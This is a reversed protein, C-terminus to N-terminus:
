AIGLAKREREIRTIYRQIQGLRTGPLNIFECGVKLYTTGDPKRIERQDCVRLSVMMIGEGPVDLRCERFIRGTSFSAEQAMDTKLSIGGGSIDQLPLQLSEQTGDDRQGTLRCHVTPETPLELRFFERRQLRLLLSPLPCIIRTGTATREIQPAQSRFQLTIHDLLTSCTLTHKPTPIKDPQGPGDLFILGQDLDVALLSSVFFQSGDGIYVTVLGHRQQLQKLYAAIETSRDILFSSNEPADLEFPPGPPPHFTM